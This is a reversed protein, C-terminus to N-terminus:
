IQVQKEGMIFYYGISKIDATINLLGEEELKQLLVAPEEIKFQLMEEKTLGSIRLDDLQEYFEPDSFVGIAVEYAFRDSEKGDLEVEESKLYWFDYYINELTYVEM